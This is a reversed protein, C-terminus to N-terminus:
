IAIQLQLVALDDDLGRRYQQDYIKHMYTLQLKAFRGYFLTAGVTFQDDTYGHGDENYEYMYRDARVGVELM